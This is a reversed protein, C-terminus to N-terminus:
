RLSFHYQHGLAPYPRVCPVLAFSVSVSSCLVNLTDQEPRAGRMTPAWLDDGMNDGGGTGDGMKPILSVTSDNEPNLSVADSVILMSSGM